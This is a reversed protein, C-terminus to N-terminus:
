TDIIEICKNLSLKWDHVVLIFEKIIKSKSLITNRPRQAPTPYKETVIPDVKCDM